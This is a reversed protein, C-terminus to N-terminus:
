RRFAEREQATLPPLGLADYLDDESDINTIPERTARDILHYQNLMFGLAKAHSRLFINHEMPGTLFNRMAPLEDAHCLYLDFQFGGVCGRVIRGSRPHCGPRFEIPLVAILEAAAEKLDDDVVVVCDLDHVTSRGRRYSGASLLTFGDPMADELQHFHRDAVSWPHRKGDMCAVVDPHPEGEENCFTDLGLDEAIQQAHEKIAAM